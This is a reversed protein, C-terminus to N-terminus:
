QSKIWKSPSSPSQLPLIRPYEGYEVYPSFPLVAALVLRGGPALKDGVDKLLTRPAPHRDVVNLVTVIDYTGDDNAPWDHADLVRSARPCVPFNNARRAWFTVFNREETASIRWKAPGFKTVIVWNQGHMAIQVFEWENTQNYPRPFISSLPFALVNRQSSHTLRQSFVICELKRRSM